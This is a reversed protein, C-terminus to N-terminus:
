ISVILIIVITMMTISVHEVLTHVHLNIIEVFMFFSVITMIKLKKKIEFLQVHKM